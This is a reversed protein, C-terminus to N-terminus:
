TGSAPAHSYLTQQRGEDLEADAEDGLDVRAVINPDDRREGSEL